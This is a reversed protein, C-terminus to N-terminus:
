KVYGTKNYCGYLVTATLRLEACSQKKRDLENKDLIAIHLM